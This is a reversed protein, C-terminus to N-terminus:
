FDYFRYTYAESFYLIATLVTALFFLIALMKFEKAKNYQPKLLDCFENFDDELLEKENAHKIEYLIVRKKNEFSKQTDRFEKWKKIHNGWLLAFSIPFILLFTLGFWRFPTLLYSTVVRNLPGAESGSLYFFFGFLIGILSSVLLIIALWSLAVGAAKLNNSIAKNSMKESILKLKPSGVFFAGARRRFEQSFRGSSKRITVV